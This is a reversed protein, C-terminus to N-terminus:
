SADRTPSTLKSKAHQIFDELLRKTGPDDAAAQEILAVVTADLQLPTRDAALDARTPILDAVEVELVAAIQWLLHLPARQRGAEINVISTRTVQVRKALKDQSISAARRARSIRGGVDAYVNDWGDARTM